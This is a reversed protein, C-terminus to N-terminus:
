LASEQLVAGYYDLMPLWYGFVYLAVLLGMFLQLSFDMALLLRGQWDRRLEDLHTVALELAGTLQGTLEGQHVLWVVEPAFLGPPRSLCSALSAGALARSPDLLKQYPALSVSEAALSLMDALSRQQRAGALLALVAVSQQEIRLAPGWLPLRLRVWAVAGECPRRGRNLRPGGFARYLATLLFGILGLRTLTSGANWLSFDGGGANEMVQVFTPRIYTDLFLGLLVIVILTLILRLIGPSSARQQELLSLRDLEEPLTESREGLAALSVWYAPFYSHCSVAYSLQAGAQLDQSLYHLTQPLGQFRTALRSRADEALKELGEHLPIGMRLLAAMQSALVARDRAPDYRQLAPALLMGAGILLTFIALEAGQAVAFLAAVVLLYALLQSSQRWIHPTAIAHGARIRPRTGLPPGKWLFTFLGPFGALLGLIMTAFLVVYAAEPDAASLLLFLLLGGGLLLRSILTSLRVLNRM